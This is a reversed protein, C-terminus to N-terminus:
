ARSTFYSLIAIYQTQNLSSSRLHAPLLPQMGYPRYVFTEDLYQRLQSNRGAPTKIANFLAKLNSENLDLREYYDLALVASLGFLVIIFYFLCTSRSRNM